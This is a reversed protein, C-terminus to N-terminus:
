PFIINKQLKKPLILNPYQDRPVLIIFVMYKEKLLIKITAGINEDNKNSKHVLM